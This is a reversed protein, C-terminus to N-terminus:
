AIFEAAEGSHAGTEHRDPEAADQCKKTEQALPGRETPGLAASLLAECRAGCPEAPAAHPSGTIEVATVSSQYPTPTASSGCLRINQKRPTRTPLRTPTNGPMPGTAVIEIRSGSVNPM